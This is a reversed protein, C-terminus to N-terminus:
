GGSSNLTRPLWPFRLRRSLHRGRHGSRWGGAELTTTSTLTLVRFRM